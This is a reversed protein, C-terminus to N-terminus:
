LIYQSIPNLALVLEMAVVKANTDDILTCVYACMIVM